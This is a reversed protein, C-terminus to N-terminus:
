RRRLSTRHCWIKTFAIHILISIPSTRASKKSLLRFFSLFDGFGTTLSMGILPCSAPSPLRVTTPPPSSSEERIGLLVDLPVDLPVGLPM